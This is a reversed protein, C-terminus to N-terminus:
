RKKGDKLGEGSESEFPIDEGEVNDGNDGEIGSELTIEDVRVRM